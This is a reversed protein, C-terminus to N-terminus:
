YATHPRKRKTANAVPVPHVNSGNSGNSGSHSYSISRVRAYWLWSMSPRSLSRKVQLKKKREVDKAKAEAKVDQMYWYMALLSGLISQIPSSLAGPLATLLPAPFHRTALVVALACSQIGTEIATTRSVKASYGLLEPVKYGLLFGISHLLFVALLVTLGESGHMGQAGGAADTYTRKYQYLL